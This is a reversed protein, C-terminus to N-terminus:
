GPSRPSPRAPGVVRAASEQPRSSHADGAPHEARREDLSTEFAVAVDEAVGQPQDTASRLRLEPLFLVVLFGALAFPVAALFVTQL